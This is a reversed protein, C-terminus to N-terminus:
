IALAAFRMSVVFAEPIGFGASGCPCSCTNPEQTNAFYERCATM